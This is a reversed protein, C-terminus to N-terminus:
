HGNERLLRNGMQHFLTRKADPNNNRKCVEQVKTENLFSGEVLKERTVEAFRLNIGLFTTVKLKLGKEVSTYFKLAPGLALRFNNFNLSSTGDFIHNKQVFGKLISILIVEKMSIRSNGFKPWTVSYVTYNSDSSLIKSTVDYVSIILDYGKNWFVKTKLLGLTTIKAPMMLITVM